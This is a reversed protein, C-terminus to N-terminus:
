PPADRLELYLGELDDLMRAMGFREAAEDRAAAGMRERAEADAAITAIADALAPPDGPPVLLGTRGDSVAEPTGNVSTAVVPVGMAMAELVAIPMGEWLSPLVLADFASLYPEVRGGFPRLVTHAGAPGSGLRQAVDGEMPGDGVIAFRPARGQEALLELADLLTPLGKQFRLTAVFGILPGDGRFEMLEADAPLSADPAVGYEIVRVRDPRVVGDAIAAAAEERAVAVLTATHRGLRREAGLALARRVRMGRRPRLMQTRYVFSHPTYVAPLHARRAAMRALLGAKQGHAHVVGIERDGLLMALGHLVRRDDGPAPVSGNWPLPLYRIGAGELPGRPRGNPPGTVTVDHGREKLGLSLRLVHEPVGGAEPEFAQLM